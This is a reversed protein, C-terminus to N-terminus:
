GSIQACRADGEKELLLDFKMHEELTMNPKWESWVRRWLPRQPDARHKDATTWAHMLRRELAALDFRSYQQPWDNAQAHWAIWGEGNPLEDVLRGLEDYEFSIREQKEERSLEGWGPDLLTNSEYRGDRVTATYREEARGRCFQHFESPFLPQSWWTLHGRYDKVAADKTAWATELNALRQKTSTMIM